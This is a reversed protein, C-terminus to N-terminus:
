TCQHCSDCPALTKLQIQEGCLKQVVNRQHPFHFVHQLLVHTLTQHSDYIPDIYPNYLENPFKYLQTLQENQVVASSNEFQLVGDIEEEIMDITRCPLDGGTMRLGDYIVFMQMAYRLSATHQLIFANLKKVDINPASLISHMSMCQAPMNQRFLAGCTHVIEDLQKMQTSVAPRLTANRLVPDENCMRQMPLMFAMGVALKNTPEIRKVVHAASIMVRMTQRTRPAYQNARLQKVM